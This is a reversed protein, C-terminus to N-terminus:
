QKMVKASLLSYKRNVGLLESRQYGSTQLLDDLESKTFQQARHNMAM